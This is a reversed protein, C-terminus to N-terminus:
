TKGFTAWGVWAGILAGVGGVAPQVAWSVSEWGVLPSVFVFAYGLLMAGVIAGGGVIGATAQSSGPTEWAVEPLIVPKSEDPM